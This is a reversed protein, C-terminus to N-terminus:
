QSGTNGALGREMGSKGYFTERGTNHNDDFYPRCGLFVAYWNGDAASVLDAVSLDLFKQQWKRNANRNRQTLIPNGKYSEYPRRGKQKPFYRSSTISDPERAQDRRERRHGSERLAAVRARRHAAARQGHQDIGLRGREGGGRM